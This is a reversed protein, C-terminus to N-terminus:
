HEELQLGDGPTVWGVKRANDRISIFDREPNEVWFLNLITQGIARKRELTLTDWHPGVYVLAGTETPEADALIGQGIAEFIVNQRQEQAEPSRDLEPPYPNADEATAVTAVAMLMIIIAHRM